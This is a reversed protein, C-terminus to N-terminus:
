LIKYLEDARSEYQRYLKITNDLAYFNNWPFKKYNHILPTGSKEKIKKLCNKGKENSTIIEIFPYTHKLAYSFDNKTIGLYISLLARQIHTKTYRKSSLNKVLEDYSSVTNIKKVILNEIGEIVDRYKKIEEKEKLIIYKLYKFIDNVSKPSNNEIINKTFDPVAKQWDTKKEFINKRIGSASMIKHSSSLDNYDAGSRKITMFDLKANLKLTNKIYEIALINNSKKLFSSDIKIIKKIINERAEAFSFGKKIKKRINEYYEKEYKALYEAIKKIKELDGAESGFSLTAEINLEKIIKIAGYAFFDASATSFLTPLKLVLDAGAKFALEGRLNYNYIAPEGRQVFNGSLIIILNEFNGNKLTENIQYLHGLHFPNYEAIIIVNKKM